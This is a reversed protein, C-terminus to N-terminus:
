VQLGIASACRLDISGSAGSYANTALINLMWKLANASYANPGSREYASRMVMTHSLVGNGLLQARPAAQIYTRALDPGIQIGTMNTTDLANLRVEGVCDVTRQDAYDALISPHVMDGRVEISSGAGMAAISLRLWPVQVPDGVDAAVISCACTTGGGIASVAWNNPVTGTVGSKTGGTGSMLPNTVWQAAAGGSDVVRPDGSFFPALLPAQAAGILYAGVPSMHIGDVTSGTVPQYGTTAMTDCDQIWACDAVSRAAVIAQIDTNYPSLDAGAKPPVQHCFVFLGAAIFGDVLQAYKSAVTGGGPGNTGARLMVFEIGHATAYAIATAQRNLMDQLTDNPVGFNYLMRPQKRTLPLGLRAGDAQYAFSTLSDGFHMGLASALFTPPVAPPVYRKSFGYGNGRQVFARM